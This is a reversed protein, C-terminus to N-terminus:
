KDNDRNLKDDLLRCGSGSKVAIAADNAKQVEDLAETKEKNDTEARGLQRDSSLTFRGLLWNVGIKEAVGLLFLWM